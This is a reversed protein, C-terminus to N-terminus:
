RRDTPPFNILAWVLAAVWGITTWGALFNLLFIQMKSHHSRLVAVITPIFYFPIFALILIELPM